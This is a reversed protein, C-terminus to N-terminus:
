SIFFAAIGLPSHSLAVGLIYFAVALAAVYAALRTRRTRAHRLCLMGLAIYVLLAIIKASLWPLAFPSIRWVVLMGIASALLLTDVVHPAVRVLPKQLRPDARIAWYGRLAFGAISVIACTVHFFKLFQFIAAIGAHIAGPGAKGM